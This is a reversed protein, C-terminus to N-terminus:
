TLSHLTAAPVKVQLVMKGGGTSQNWIKKEQDEDFEM